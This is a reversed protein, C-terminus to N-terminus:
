VIWVAMDSVGELAKRTFNGLTFHNDMSDGQRGMVIAGCHHKKAAKLIDAAPNRTGNAIDIAIRSEPIGAATLMERARDMAPGITKETTRSLADEIGPLDEYLAKPLFRRLRPKDHYLTIRSETGNLIFGAYDVARLANESNDMALLVHPSKVVGRLIWVPCVRSCEVLKRCVEGMFFAELRSRGHSSMVLGDATCKEAWEVIDQAIDVRRHRREMTINEPHFGRRVLLDKAKNLLAEANTENRKELQGLQRAIERNRRGEEVLAPPLSPLIHILAVTLDHNTGFVLHLYDLSRLAIPSGDQPLVLMKKINQAM